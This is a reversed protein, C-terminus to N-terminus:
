KLRTYTWNGMGPKEPIAVLLGKEMLEKGNMTLTTGRDIDRFEYSADPELGSVNLRASEFPSAERRFAQVMGQGVEPRDFQWAMWTTKDLSYPTLPYFDGYYNPSLERFQAYLRRIENYDLKNSRMDYDLVYSPVANSWFTYPTQPSYDKINCGLDGHGQYPIWPATGYTMGQDGIEGCAYDSRWLPLALRLSEVDNCRGGSACVDITLNPNRRLLDEWVGLYGVIHKIETIGQRDPADAKRWFALPWMNFDQRYIDIKEEALTRHLYETMWKRAAPNGLNLLGGESGGLVWDPHDKALMTGAAVREPEFWVITRMGKSHAYDCIGRLGNPFRKRDITWNGVNVWDSNPFDYWGADMWWTDVKLGEAVYRDIFMKQNEETANIMLNYPGASTGHLMPQPLKGGPRPMNHAVMWRRWVNQAAIWDGTYTQMVILPTRVEEGPLLKFHTLEQGARIRLGTKDDRTFDAVWQGPWGVAIIRGAGTWEVNFYPWIGSSGRGLTSALWFNTKPQLPKEMPQFDNIEAQSGLWHHLLFEGQAGRDLGLDLAQIQEVIPTDTKGTNKFYITWEVTPFDQYEVAECRVELRTAPDTWIRTRRTRSADLTKTKQRYKWGQLQEAFPKGQYLFSFPIMSAQPALYGQVIQDKAALAEATVGGATARGPLGVLISAGLCFWFYFKM